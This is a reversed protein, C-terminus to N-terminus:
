HCGSTWANLFFLVDLTNVVGDGNADGVCPKLAVLDGIESESLARDYIRLEDIMGDFWNALCGCSGWYTGISIRTNGPDNYPENPRDAVEVLIGDVYLSKTGAVHDVTIAVHRWAGAFQGSPSSVFYNTNNGYWSNAGLSGGSFGAHYSVAHNSGYRDQVVTFDGAPDGLLKVYFAITHSDDDLDFSLGGNHDVLFGDDIGDLRVARGVAGPGYSPDGLQTIPYCHGTADTAAGEFPFYAVLGGPDDIEAIGYNPRGADFLDNWLGPTGNPHNLLMEAANEDTGGDPSGDQWNTFSSDSGSAWVWTGEEAYDNLGIWLGHESPYLPQYLSLLRDNEEQTEITVLSGGLAEAQAQCETWSGPGVLVYTHSSSSFGALPQACVSAFPLAALLCTTLRFLM